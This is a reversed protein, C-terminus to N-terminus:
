QIRGAGQYYPRTGVAGLQGQVILFIIVRDKLWYDSLESITLLKLYIKSMSLLILRIGNWTASLQITKFLCPGFSSMIETGQCVTMLLYDGM